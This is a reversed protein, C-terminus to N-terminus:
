IISPIKKVMENILGVLNKNKNRMVQNYDLYYLIKVSISNTQPADITNGFNKFFRSEIVNDENEIANKYIISLNSGPAFQWSYILDINFANYNFNNNVNYINNETLSGDQELIYYQKYNGTKWYHRSILNLSMDNKFIYQFNLSNTITYLERGGYIINNNEDNDVYGLNYTDNDWSNNYKIQIKDNVKYRLGPIIVLESGDFVEFFDGYNIYFDIALPKRTDTSISAYGFYYRYGRSFRGEVRPENYDYYKFPLVSGGFDFVWYNPLIEYFDIALENYTVKKTEPNTIYDFTISNYSERYLKHPKYVNYLVYIREKMKNAIIYYGLDRSDYTKSIFTHSYGFQFNGSSKNGGIFYKYGMQDNFTNSLTDIRQFKQSLAIDGDFTYKNKFIPLSFGSGTVNAHDYKKDRIVNTNIFYFSGNNKYKQDLVIINYNTLPETLIKRKNGNHDEITAYTNDTLANFFGIGLGTNGRGSIKIANILKTKSPNEKIFEGENLESSINFYEGPTKGIRRSYFM